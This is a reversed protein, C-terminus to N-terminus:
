KWNYERAGCYTRPQHWIRNLNICEKFPVPKILGKPIYYPSQRTDSQRNFRFNQLNPEVAIVMKVNERDAKCIYQMCVRQNLITVINWYIYM